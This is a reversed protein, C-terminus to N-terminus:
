AIIEVAVSDYLFKGKDTLRLISDTNDIESLNSLPANKAKPERALLGLSELRVLPEAACDAFSFGTRCQFDSERLGDLQRLGIALRERASELPTLRERHVQPSEGSEILKLYRMLSEANTYRWGDIYGSAGCGLGWYDAGSWYVQNHRSRHGPRAFSSIEYHQHGNATLSQIVMEYMQLRLEEDSEFLQGKLRRTWFQTGKEFTLEYTSLHEAGLHLAQDIDNQWVQPTENPVAFILDISISKAFKRVMEVARMVQDPSHDRELIQLKQPDFSQVGLSIRNVGLDRFLTSRDIQLDIPNAELTVETAATWTFREGILAFLERLQEDTLHSPTGGGLYLTELEAHVPLQEVEKRLAFLYREVLHDRGAVLSFNCYGCRHRCFPVHIYVSSPISQPNETPKLKNM